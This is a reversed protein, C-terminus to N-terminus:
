GGEMIIHWLSNGCAAKETATACILLTYVPTCFAKFLGVIVPATCMGFKCSLMNAQAYMLCCQRFIVIDDSLDDSMYHGLYKIPTCVKLSFEPIALNQDKSKDIFINRKKGNYHIDFELGCESCARLLQQLGASYPIVM